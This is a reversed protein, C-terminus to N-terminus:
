RNLIQSPTHSSKAYFIKQYFEKFNIKKLYYSLNRPEELIDQM